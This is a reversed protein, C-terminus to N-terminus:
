KNKLRGLFYAIPCFLILSVVIMVLATAAAGGPDDGGIGGLVKFVGGFMILWFTFIAWEKGKHTRVQLSGADGRTPVFDHASQHTNSHLVIADYASKISQMMSVALQYKEPQGQHQEPQWQRVLERVRDQLEGASAGPELGLTKYHVDLDKSAVAEKALTNFDAYSKQVSSGTKKSRQFFWFILMVSVIGVLTLIAPMTSADHIAQPKSSAPIIAQHQTSIISTQSSVNKLASVGTDAATDTGTRNPPTPSAPPDDLVYGSAAPKSQTAPKPAGTDDDYPNFIRPGKTTSTDADEYPNFLRPM